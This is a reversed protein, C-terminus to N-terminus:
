FNALCIYSITTAYIGAAQSSSINAIMSSTFKHLDDPGASSAVVDGTQFRFQNPTNYAAAISGGTGPGAPDAGIAPNSNARLNVGFQSTGPQSATQAALAPITNNGSTLTTGNMTVSYGFAANTAVVFEWSAKSAKTRNFEGVDILFSTATSCDLGTITVSVCFKLYPPVEAAVSLGSVVALAVGGEQINAGSGDIGAHTSLRLYFTGAASPNQVNTFEYTAPVGSPAVPVRTLIVKNGTSAPDVTFGTEGQQDALTAGSMDFGAPANCAESM